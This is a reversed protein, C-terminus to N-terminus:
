VSAKLAPDRQGRLNRWRHWRNGKIGRSDKLDEAIKQAVCQLEGGGLPGDDYAELANIFVNDIADAVCPFANGVVLQLRHEITEDLQCLIIASADPEAQENRLADDLAM